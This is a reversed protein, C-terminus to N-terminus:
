NGAGGASFNVTAKLDFPVPKGDLLAPKYVWRKVADLAAQRLVPSGDLVEAQQVRGGADIAIKVHVSGQVHHQIAFEPYRPRIQYMLM